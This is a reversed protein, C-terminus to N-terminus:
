RDQRLIEHLVHGEAGSPFRIGLITSVTTALDVIEVPDGYEGPKIWDKGMFVLPVHTDYSWPSGHTTCYEGSENFLYWGQKQIVLLDGSLQQNWSRAALLGFRTPPVTGNLLQTRTFVTHVGPYDRLFEAAANEVDERKLGKAAIAAQDLNITPNFWSVAYRADGFKKSLAANLSALLKDPDLRGAEFHLTNEYFEPSHAFGHDATLTVLVHDLGVWQDIGALLSALTKDLRLLDDQSQKSEPGFLHNIEDHCSFSVAVLDPVNRPNRGISEAKIATLLFEVTYDDGFPTWRLEDYYKKGGLYHPFRAGLGINLKYGLGSACGDTMSQWYADAPFLPDWVKDLWKDQPKGADFQKWWDPYEKAYYTSTVFRGTDKSFWYAMGTKGGTFIAGRDKVSVSLVKSQMGTAVRLEDGVTTVQLNRPSTGANDETPEGLLTSSADACCYMKKQAVRDWWDNGVIGHRYPYAGTLITAHGVATYTSAHGQHADDFWAGQKLLLKFGGDGLQDYYKLVQDQPLGDVTIVLVLKPEPLVSPNRFEAHAFSSLVSLSTVLFVLIFHLRCRYNM